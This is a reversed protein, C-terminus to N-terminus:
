CLLHALQCHCGSAFNVSVSSSFTSSPDYLSNKCHNKKKEGGVFNGKLVNKLKRLIHRELNGVTLKWKTCLKYETDFGDRGVEIMCQWQEPLVKKM